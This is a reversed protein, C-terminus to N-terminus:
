EAEMIEIVKEYDKWEHFCKKYSSIYHGQGEIIDNLEVAITHSFLNVEMGGEDFHGEGIVKVFDDLDSFHIHVFAVVEKGKCYLGTENENLFDYLEANVEM